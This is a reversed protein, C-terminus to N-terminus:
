IEVEFAIENRRIFGPIFPPNYRMLIPEGQTKIKHKSLISLLTKTKEKIDEQKAKGRFRLVALNKSKREELKVRPNKPKPAKDITFKSPLVFAMYNSGSIVPVTMDIEQSSIVPATMEIKQDSINEGSIYRFLFGFAENDELDRVVALVLRPYHRIEVDEINQKITYELNEVM